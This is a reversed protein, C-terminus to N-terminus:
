NPGAREPGAAAVPGFEKIDAGAIFIGDKASILVVGALDDRSELTDLHAKLEDLTRTSLLNARSGPQDFTLVAVDDAAMSLQITPGADSM